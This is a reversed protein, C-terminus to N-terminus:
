NNLIIWDVWILSSYSDCFRAFYGASYMDSKWKMQYYMKIHKENFTVERKRSSFNGSTYVTHHLCFASRLSESLVVLKWNKSLCLSIPPPPPEMPVAGSTRVQFGTQSHLERLQIQFIAILPLSLFYKSQFLRHMRFIGVEVSM